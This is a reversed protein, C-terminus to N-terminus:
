KSSAILALGQHMALAISRSDNSYQFRNCFYQNGDSNDFVHLTFASLELELKELKKGEGDIEYLNMYYSIAGSKTSTKVLEGVFSLHLDYRIWADDLIGFTKSNVRGRIDIRHDSQSIEFGDPIHTVQDKWEALYIGPVIEGGDTNVHTTTGTVYVIREAPGEAIVNYKFELEGYADIQENYKNIWARLQKNLDAEIKGFRTEAKGLDLNAEMLQENLASNAEKLLSQDYVTKGLVGASILAALALIALFINLKSSFNMREM